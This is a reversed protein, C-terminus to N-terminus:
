HYRYESYHQPNEQAEENICSQISGKLVYGGYTFDVKRYQELRNFSSNQRLFETLRREDVSTLPGARESYIHALYYVSNLYVRQEFESNEEMIQKFTDLKIANLSCDTLARCTSLSKSNISISNAYSMIAGLGKKLQVDESLM